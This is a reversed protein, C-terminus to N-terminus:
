QLQFSDASGVSGGPIADVFARWAQEARSPNQTLAGGCWGIHVKGAPISTWIRQVTLAVGILPVRVKFYPPSASRRDRPIELRLGENSVDIINSPVGDVVAEFRAVSKRPSRREPRGELIVMSVLCVLAAHDVPRELYMAHHREASAQAEKDVNGVVVTPTQPSRTRGRSIAHLGGRFALDFDAILLDYTHRKLEDAAPRHPALPVPEFGDSRLWDALVESEARDALAIVVKPRSSM